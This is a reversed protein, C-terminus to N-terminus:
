GTELNNKGFVPHEQLNVMSACCRKQRKKGAGLAFCGAALEVGTCLQAGPKAVFLREARWAPPHRYASFSSAV